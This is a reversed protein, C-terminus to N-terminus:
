LKSKRVLPAPEKEVLEILADASDIRKVHGHEDLGVFLGTKMLLEFARRLAQEDEGKLEVHKSNIPPIMDKESFNPRQYVKKNGFM